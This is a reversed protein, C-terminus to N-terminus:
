NVQPKVLKASGRSCDAPSFIALWQGDTAPDGGWLTPTDEGDSSDGRWVSTAVSTDCLLGSGHPGGM